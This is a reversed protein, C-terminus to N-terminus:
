RGARERRDAAIARRAEHSNTSLRRVELDARRCRALAKEVSSSARMARGREIRREVKNFVVRAIAGEPLDATIRRGLNIVRVRKPKTATVDGPEGAEIGGGLRGLSM